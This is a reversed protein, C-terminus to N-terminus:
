RSQGCRQGGDRSVDIAGKEAIQAGIRAAQMAEGAGDLMNIDMIVSATLDGLAWARAWGNANADTLTQVDHYMGSVNFVLDIAEWLIKGAFGAVNTLTQVVQQVAPNSPQPDQTPSSGGGGNAPKPWPKNPDHCPGCGSSPGTSGSNCSEGPDGCVVRNGSPDTRSEPNNGVYAYPDMGTTNTQVTDARTFRGSVPDYYRANDYILGTQADLRQGTFGYDTPMVQDSYRVAGYPAFLQVAQVRGDSNLAISDSGLFDPLLYSLIAGKRMAVRQGAVSYYNTITPAAGNVLSVETLGDFTITDTTTTTGSTTSDHRLVRNGENDYLYQESSQLGNAGTWSALRGLNDYSLQAGTQVGAACSQGGTTDTTRCTMNGM